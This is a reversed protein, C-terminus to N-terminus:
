SLAKTSVLCSNPASSSSRASRSGAGRPRFLRRRPPPEIAWTRSRAYYRGTSGHESGDTTTEIRSEHRIGRSFAFSALLPVMTLALFLSGALAACVTIAMPRFMRGELGELFLIPMYVAIIIAVAFTM